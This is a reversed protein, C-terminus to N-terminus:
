LILGRLFCERHFPLDKNQVHRNSRRHLIMSVYVFRTITIKLNKNM